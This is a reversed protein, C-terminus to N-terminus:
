GEDSFLKPPISQFFIQLTETRGIEQWMTSKELKLKKGSQECDGIKLSPITCCGCLLTCFVRSTRASYNNPKDFKNSNAMRKAIAM